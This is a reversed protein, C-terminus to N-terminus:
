HVQGGYPFKSKMESMLAEIDKSAQKQGMVRFVRQMLEREASKESRRMVVAALIFWVAILSFFFSWPTLIGEYLFLCIVITLIYSAVSLRSLIADSHM